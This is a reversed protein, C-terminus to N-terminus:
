MNIIILWSFFQCKKKNIKLETKDYRCVVKSVISLEFYFYHINQYYLLLYISHLLISHLISNRDFINLGFLCYKKISHEVHTQLINFFIKIRTNLFIMYM